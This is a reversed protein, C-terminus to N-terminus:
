GKKNLKMWFIHKELNSFVNVISYLELRVEFYDFKLLRKRKFTKYVIRLVISILRSSNMLLSFLNLSNENKNVLIEDLVELFNSSYIKFFGNNYYHNVFLFRVTITSFRFLM